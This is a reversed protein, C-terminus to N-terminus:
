QKSRVDNVVKFSVNMFEYIVYTEENKEFVNLLNILNDNNTNYIIKVNRTINLRHKIAILSHDQTIVFVIYIIEIQKLIIFKEYIVFESKENISDDIKVKKFFFQFKNFQFFIM